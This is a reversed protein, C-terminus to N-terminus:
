RQAGQKLWQQVIKLYDESPTTLTTGDDLVLRIEHGSNISTEHVEGGPRIALTQLATPVYQIGVIPELMNPNLGSSGRHGYADDLDYFYSTFHKGVEAGVAKITTLIGTTVELVPQGIQFEPTNPM